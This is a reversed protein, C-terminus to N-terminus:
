RCRLFWLITICEWTYPPWWVCVSGNQQAAHARVIDHLVAVVCRPLAPCPHSRSQWVTGPSAKVFVLRFCWKVRGCSRRWSRSLGCHRPVLLKSLVLIALPSFLVMRFLDGGRDRFSVSRYVCVGWVCVPFKWNRAHETLM